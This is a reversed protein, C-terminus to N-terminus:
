QSGDEKKLELSIQEGEIEVTVKDANIKKVIAKGIRDNERVMYTELPSRILAVPTDSYFIGILELEITGDEDVAKSVINKGAYPEYPNSKLNLEVPQPWQLQDTLAAGKIQLADVKNRIQELSTDITKSSAYAM